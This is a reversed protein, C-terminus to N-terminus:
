SRQSLKKAEDIFNAVLPSAGQKWILSIRVEMLNDAPDIPVFSVEHGCLRSSMAPVLAFGVGAAVLALTTQKTRANQVIEPTAGLRSFTGLIEDYIGPHGSREFFVMPEGDLEGLSAMGRGDLAHGRPVALVYPERLFPFSEFERDMGCSRVLAIDLSGDHLLHRMNRSNFEALEITIEPYKDKFRKIVQPFQSQTAAPIFGIALRGIRGERMGELSTKAIDLKHLVEEAVGLLYKGEATLSVGHRERVFLRVGLEEELNKIQRSLPPQAIHVREAARTFSAEEAVALFYKLQRLEM